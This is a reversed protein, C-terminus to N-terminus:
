AMYKKIQIEIEDINDNFYEARIKLRIQGKKNDNLKIEANAKDLQFGTMNTWQLLYNFRYGDIIGIDDIYYNDSLDSFIVYSVLFVILLIPMIFQSFGTMKKANILDFYNLAINYVIFFAIIGISWFIQSYGGFEKHKQRPLIYYKDKTIGKKIKFFNIYRIIFLLFVFILVFYIVFSFGDIPFILILISILYLIINEVLRSNIMRTM